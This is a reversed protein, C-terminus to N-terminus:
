RIRMAPRIASQSINLGGSRQVYGDLSYRCADIVHDWGSAPIPLIDGNVRDVKYSYMRFEEAAHKCRPHIIIKKFSKLLAIGDLVSGPWKKAASIRFGKRAMYSITEPRANDAKIPWTRSTPVTDFLAPTEDLEVGVGYAEADLYLYGDDVFDRILVSPDCNHVLIGNAFYEGNEVTIDFVEEKGQRLSLKIPM